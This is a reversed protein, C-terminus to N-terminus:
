IHILSLIFALSAIVVGIISLVKGAITIYRGNSDRLGIAMEKLDSNAYIWTIMGLIGGVVCWSTVLSVIGFTLM